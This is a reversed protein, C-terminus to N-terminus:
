GLDEGSDLAVRLRGAGNGNSDKASALAGSQGNGTTPVSDDRKTVDKIRPLVVTSEGPRPLVLMAKRDKAAVKRRAVVQTTELDPEADAKAAPAEAPESAPSQPARGARKFKPPAPMRPALVAGLVAADVQEFQRLAASIEGSRTRGSEAVVIVAQVHSALAQAEVAVTPSATELLVHDFRAALEALVDLMAAVPLEEDVDLDGPLLVRLQSLGPAASLAKLTTVDRRLVDALGYRSRGAGVMQTLPSDPKTTVIAVQQGTRAYAAALNGVVYGGATGPSLNSVLLVRGHGPEAPEPVTTLLVNRLRGLERSARHTPPLLSLTHAKEPLELLMPLGLRDSIDRGRRVRTDLRDLLLALVIGFLIGAGLGSALNLTQDPSSPKEPLRADSIIEGPDLAIALLPSLRSNLLTLQNTLVNREAEGRAKDVSNSPAAAIKGTVTGLQKQVDTIQSKLASTENELRRKGDDLKLDLYAQAFAHSGAQAMQPSNAEFAVLLVQSNPPVTITLAPLLQEAPMSGGMIKRAREAVVLSNMVQAETDLNVKLTQDLGIPRVLVSTSSTYARPQMQTVVLSAVAGIAAFLVLIWWRRRLWSLYTALTASESDALEAHSTLPM